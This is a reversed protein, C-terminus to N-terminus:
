RGRREAVRANALPPVASPARRHHTAQEFAYAYGIIKAEDWARGMIQLGQPLGEGLYGSPVSLAPWHLASAVFTLSGNAATPGANPAPRPEAVLQTNRDGNIPPLQAATPFVVADIRGADMATTFVDRYRQDTKTAEITDPDAAVPKAAAAAELFPQHLPHALRSDAIARVSPFPIGPHRTIWKTLDDKFQIATPGRQIPGVEPVTFPDVIEAGAAKLEAITTEFHAMIRPDTVVQRFVQRLVGLRAGKLADKRLGATYTPPRHETAGTTAQDEPDTGSIVDLLLAMDAVTRAIPGATDRRSNLPVMGTRSVLGVTPRLGALANYASPMRVSGGTDTGIAVVGFSAAVAAASGGSSGGTAFATNYPNRAFGPVVSNVNDAIGYAFESLSAKALIIGGAARLKTVLPADVAPYYNKWGQFGSTMPLGAVDINDKVIVPIGHLPGVLKGSAKLLGDLRDAEELARPNVTILANIFPGHKDYAQIRDLHAQTVARATTRRSLYAAELGAISAEEVAVRVSQVARQSAAPRRATQTAASHPVLLASVALVWTARM